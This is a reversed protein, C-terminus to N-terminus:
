NLGVRLKYKAPTPASGGRHIRIYYKGAPLAKKILEPNNALKKSEAIQKPVTNYLFLDYDTGNPIDTLSIIVTAPGHLQIFLLDDIDSLSPFNGFYDKNYQLPGNATSLGNNPEEEDPGVFFEPKGTIPMFMNMRYDVSVVHAEDPMLVANDNGTLNNNVTGYWRDVFWGADPTASVGILEGKVYQSAPCGPSRELNTAQPALGYGSYQLSLLHCDEITTNLVFLAASSPSGLTAKRADSLQLLYEDGDKAGSIDVNLNRAVDGESFTLTGNSLTGSKTKVVSYDVKVIQGSAESLTVAVQKETEGVMATFENQIFQVTPPDENDEIRVTATKPVGLNANSENYLILELTEQDEEDLLDDKITVQITESQDGPFFSIRGASGSIGAYDEGATATGDQTKVWVWVTKASPPVLTINVPITIDGEIVDYDAFEFQLTPSGEDDTINLTATKILGYEANASKDTLALNVTETGEGTQDDLIRITITQETVGPDFDLWGSTSPASYDQGYTASGPTISYKVSATEGTYGDRKVKIQINRTPSEPESYTYTSFQFTPKKVYNVKVTHKATEAIYPMKVVNTGGDTGEWSLVRFGPDPHSTLTIVEGGKYQGTACGTSNAKDPTPAGGNSGSTLELTRCGETFYATAVILNTAGTMTIQGNQASTPTVNGSWGTFEFGVAPNATLNLASGSDYSPPVCVLGGPPTVTITGGAVPTAPDVNTQLEYCYVFRATINHDGSVFFSYPNNSGIVSSSTEDYWEKFAYNPYATATLTVETDIPYPGPRLDPDVTVEGTGAPDVSVTVSGDTLQASTPQFLLVGTVLVMALMLLYTGFRKKKKM